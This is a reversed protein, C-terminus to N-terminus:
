QRPASDPQADQSSTGSSCTTGGNDVSTTTCLMNAAGSGSCQMGGETTKSCGNSGAPPNDANPGPTGITMTGSNSGESQIGMMGSEEGNADNFVMQLVPLGTSSIGLIHTSGQADTYRLYKLKQLNLDSNQGRDPITMMRPFEKTAEEYTLAKLDKAQKAAQLDALADGHVQQNLAKQQEPTLKTVAGISQKTLEQAHATPSQGNFMTFTTAAAIVLLMALGSFAIRKKTMFISWGRNISGLTHSPSMNTNDPRSAAFIAQKLQVHHPKMTVVPVAMNQFGDLTNITRQEMDDIVDHKTFLQM